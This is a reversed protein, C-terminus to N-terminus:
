RRGTATRGIDRSWHMGAVAAYARASAEAIDGGLAQVGLVRGGATVRAGDRRATGAHFLTVGPLRAASM